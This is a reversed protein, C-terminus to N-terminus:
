EPPRPAVHEVRERPPVVRARDPGLAWHARDAPLLREWAVVRAAVRERALNALEGGGDGLAAPLLVHEGPGHRQLHAEAVERRGGPRHGGPAPERRRGLDGRGGALQEPADVDLAGHPEEAHAGRPQARELERGPVLEVEEAGRPGRAVPAPALELRRGGRDAAAVALARDPGSGLDRSASPPSARARRPRRAGNNARRARAVIHRSRRASPQAIALRPPSRTGSESSSCRM